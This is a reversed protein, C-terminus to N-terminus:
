GGLSWLSLRLWDTLRHTWVWGLTHSGADIKAVGQLGPRLMPASGELEGIVEFFNRGDRAVAVPTVTRVRFALSRDLAGLAVHGKQGPQVAAVDREDVEVILRFQDAPAVTLLV